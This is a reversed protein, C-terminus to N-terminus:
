QPKRPQQIAMFHSDSYILEYNGNPYLKLSTGCTTRTTFINNLLYGSDVIIEKNRLKLKNQNRGKERFQFVSTKPHAAKYQVIANNTGDIIGAIYKSNKADLANWCTENNFDYKIIITDNLTQGSADSLYKRIAEVKALPFSGGHEKDDRYIRAEACALVTAAILILLIPNKFRTIM